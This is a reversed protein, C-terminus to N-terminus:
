LLTSRCSAAEKKSFQTDTRGELRWGALAFPENGAAICVQPLPSRVPLQPARVPRGKNPELNTIAATIMVTIRRGMPSHNM